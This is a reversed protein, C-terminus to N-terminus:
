SPIKLVGADYVIAGGVLTLVPRTGRMTADSVTFYDRDLVVLDALKGVEISGLDHERNMYWANARTYAYLAQQRSIQQGLVNKVQSLTPKCETSARM